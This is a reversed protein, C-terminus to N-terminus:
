YLLTRSNGVMLKREVIGAVGDGVISHRVVPLVRIRSGNNLHKQLFVRIDKTIYLCYESPSNSFFNLEEIERAM